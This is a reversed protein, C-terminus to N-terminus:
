HKKRVPYYVDPRNVALETIRRMGLLWRHTKMLSSPAWIVYIPHIKLLNHYFAGLKLLIPHKEKSFPISIPKCFSTYLSFGIKSTWCACGRVIQAFTGRQSALYDVLLIASELRINHVLIRTKNRWPIYNPDTTFVLSYKHWCSYRPDWSMPGLCNSDTWLCKNPPGLVFIPARLIKSGQLSTKFFIVVFKGTFISNVHKEIPNVQLKWPLLLPDSNKSTQFPPPSLFFNM